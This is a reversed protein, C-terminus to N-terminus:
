SIAEPLGSTEGHMMKYLPDWVTVSRESFRGNQYGLQPVLLHKDVSCEMAEGTQRNDDSLFHDYAAVITSIPTLCDAAVADLM